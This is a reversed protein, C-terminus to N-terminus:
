TLPCQALLFLLRPTWAFGSGQQKERLKQCVKEKHEEYTIRGDGNPDLQECKAVLKQLLPREAAQEAVLVKARQELVGCVYGLAGKQQAAQRHRKFWAQIKAKIEAKEQADLVGDGNRDYQAVQQLQVTAWLFAREARSLLKDGNTDYQALLQAGRVRISAELAQEDMHAVVASEEGALSQLLQVMGVSELDFHEGEQVAPTVETRECQQQLRALKAGSEGHAVKERVWDCQQQQRVVYAFEQPQVQVEACRALVRQLLPSNTQDEVSWQEAQAQARMCAEDKTMQPDRKEKLDRMKVLIEARMSTKESADLRGDGNLDYQALYQQLRQERFAQHVAVREEDDLIGNGNHDFKQLLKLKRSAVEEPLDKEEMQAVFAPSMGSQFLEVLQLTAYAEADYGLGMHADLTSSAGVESSKVAQVVQPEAPSGCAGLLLVGLVWTCPVGSSKVDM